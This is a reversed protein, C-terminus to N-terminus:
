IGARPGNRLDSMQGTSGRTRLHADHLHLSGRRGTEQDNLDEHLRHEPRSASRPLSQDHNKNTKERRQPLPFINLDAGVVVELEALATQYRALHEQAEAEVDRQTRQAAIWDPFTAKGSQYAFQTAQFAQDAQPVLRERCFEVHHHATEVAQLASRLRGVAEKELRDSAAEAATLNSNAESVGASYKRQNGWPVSFSLGVGIQSLAQGTDNYREGQIGIAPDPIWARHALQLKAKEVEVKAKGTQVEPRNALTLARLADAGPSLKSMTLGVPRSLLAFADRDMLVNLQSQADSLDRELDRETELLRVAETESVLVDAISQRGVAYGARNIKAIQAVSEQNRRTLELQTYVNALRFYAARAQALADLQQRRMEEFAVVAEAAAIRTRSRNKGSVPIAQEISLSQDTFANPAINVFRAMVTNASVKLDAWATEQVIRKKAAEWKQRAEEISPNHAFVARTVDGLSLRSADDAAFVTRNCATSFLLFLFFTAKM